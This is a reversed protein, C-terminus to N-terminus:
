VDLRFGEVSSQLEKTADRMKSVVQQAEASQERSVKTLNKINRMNLALDTASESGDQMKETVSEVVQKLKESGVGIERLSEGATDATKAGDVVRATTQEMTSIAEKSSGQINQVLKDIKQAAEAAEDALVQVEEAVVAFGKGSEGADAAQIAANLALVQIRAGVTRILQTVVGIEQSSEGLSKIRKATEQITERINNMGEITSKVVEEGRKSLELTETALDSSQSTQQAVSDLEQSIKSIDIAVSDIESEQQNAYDAMKASIKDTDGALDTVKFATNRVRLVLKRLDNLTANLALAIENTFGNGVTAQKTLDGKGLGQIEGLLQHVAATNRDNEARSERAKQKDSKNQAYFFYAIGSALMLVGLLAGLQWYKLGDDIKQHEASLDRVGRLLSDSDKYISNNLEKVRQIEDMSGSLALLNAEMGSSVFNKKLALLAMKAEGDKIPSIDEKSNGNELSFIVERLSVVGKAIDFAVEPAVETHGQLGVVNLAILKLRDSGYQILNHESEKLPLQLFANFDVALAAFDKEARNLRSQLLGLDSKEKLISKVSQKTEEWKKGVSDLQKLSSENDTSLFSSLGTPKLQSLKQTFQSEDDELRNLAEKDGQSARFANKAVSQTLSALTEDVTRKGLIESNKSVYTVSASLAVLLGLVALSISLITHTKLEQKKSNKMSLFWGAKEDKAVGGWKDKNAKKM